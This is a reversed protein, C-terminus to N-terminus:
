REASKPNPYIANFNSRYCGSEKNFLASLAGHLQGPRASNGSPWCTRLRTSASARGFVATRGSNQVRRGDSQFRQQSRLPFCVGGREAREHRRALLGRRSQARPRCGRPHASRLLGRDEGRHHAASGLRHARLSRLGPRPRGSDGHAHPRWSGGPGATRFERGPFHRASHGSRGDHSLRFRRRRGRAPRRRYGAPFGDATRGGDAADSLAAPPDQDDGSATSEDSLNRRTAHRAGRRQISYYNEKLRYSGAQPNLNFCGYLPSIFRKM